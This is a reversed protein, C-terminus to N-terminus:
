LLIVGKKETNMTKLRQFNVDLFDLVQFFKSFPMSRYMVANEPPHAFTSFEYMVFFYADKGYFNERRIEYRNFRFVRNSKEMKQTKDVCSFIKYSNLGILFHYPSNSYPFIAVFIGNDNKEIGFRGIRIVM